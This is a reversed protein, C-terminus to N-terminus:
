PGHLAGPNLFQTGWLADRQVSTLQAHDSAESWHTYIANIGGDVIERARRQTLGYEHGVALLGAFSSARQGDPGYAIAQSATEGTRSMPSLDYAPTLTLRTGDWFTAHNRLPDDTNSIAINFAIRRFLETGADHGRERLTALLDLYSGYRATM